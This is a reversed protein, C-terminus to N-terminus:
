FKRHRPRSGSVCGRLARVENPVQQGAKEMVQILEPICKAKNRTILTYATGSKDHRATRGIRHVYDEVSNPFDYNIVYEVDTIDLGRAAVDTAILIPIKGERFDRLVRDRQDQSKDGHIPAVPWGRRGLEQSLYDCARKTETFVISKVIRGQYAKEMFRTFCTPKEHEEVVEVLQKINPNANLSDAQGVAIRMPNMLFDAALRRVEKPWTASFMLTQRDKRIQGVIKRIQPEFGMDLMRDAEDLILFSCRHLNFSGSQIFDLLRGPCAVVIEAGSQIQRLQGNKPAGGYVAVTRCNMTGGFKKAEEQVQQALERTPTLILAIPGDGRRLPAQASIHVMAPVLFALTKGSGTRAIGITDQGSLSLPWGQAQIPTPNVYGVRQFMDHLPRPVTLEAFTLIPKIRCQHDEVHIDSEQRWRQIENVQRSQTVPSEQYFNKRIGEVQITSYDINRVGGFDAEWRGPGGFQPAPRGYQPAYGGYQAHNFGGHSQGSYNGGFGSSRQGYGNGGQNWSM